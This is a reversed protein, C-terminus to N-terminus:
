SYAMHTYTVRWILTNSTSSLVSYHLNHFLDTQLKMRYGSCIPLAENHMVKIRYIIGKERNRDHWLSLSQLLIRPEWLRLKGVPPILVGGRQYPQEPNPPSSTPMTDPVCPTNARHSNGKGGRWRRKAKAMSFTATLPAAPTRRAALLLM